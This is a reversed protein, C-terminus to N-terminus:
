QQKRHEDGDQDRARFRGHRKQGIRRLPGRQPEFQEGPGVDNIQHDGIQQEIRYELLSHSLCEHRDEPFIVGFRMRQSATLSAAATAMAAAPYAMKKMAGSSCVMCSIWRM